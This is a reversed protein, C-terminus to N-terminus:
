EEYEEYVQSGDANTVIGPHRVRLGVELLTSKISDTVPGIKSMDWELNDDEVLTKICDFVANDIADNRELQEDTLELEKM